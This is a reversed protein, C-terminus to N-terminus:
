HHRHQNEIVRHEGDTLTIDLWADYAIQTAWGEADTATVDGSEKIAVSSGGGYPASQGNALRIVFGSKSLQTETSDHPM